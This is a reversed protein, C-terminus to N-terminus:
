GSGYGVISDVLKDELKMGLLGRALKCFSSFEPVFGKVMETFFDAAEM